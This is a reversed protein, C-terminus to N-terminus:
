VAVGANIEARLKAQHAKIAKLNDKQAKRWAISQAKKDDSSCWSHHLVEGTTQVGEAFCRDCLDTRRSKINLGIM